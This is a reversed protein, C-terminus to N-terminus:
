HFVLYLIFWTMVHNISPPSSHSLFFFNHVVETMARAGRTRGGLPQGNWCVLLHLRHDCRIVTLGGARRNRRNRKILIKRIKILVVMVEVEVVVVVVAM